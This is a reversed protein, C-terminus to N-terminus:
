KFGIVNGSFEVQTIEFSYCAGLFLLLKDSDDENAGRKKAVEMCFCNGGKSSIKGFWKERRDAMDYFRITDMDGMVILNGLRFLCGLTGKEMPIVRLTKGTQLDHLLAKKDEGGTVVLNLDDSVLVTHIYTEHGQDYYLIEERSFSLRVLKFSPSLAMQSGWVHEADLSVAMHKLYGVMIKHKTSLHPITKEDVISENKAEELKKYNKQTLYEIGQKGILDHAHFRKV